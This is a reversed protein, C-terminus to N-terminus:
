RPPCRYPHLADLAAQRARDSRLAGAFNQAVFNEANSNSKWLQDITKELGDRLLLRVPKADPGYDDLAMDLQLLKAALTQIAKNQGGYVGYATWILLGLSIASLPTLLGVIASVIDRARGTSHKEHLM